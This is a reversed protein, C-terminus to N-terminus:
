RAVDPPCAPSGNGASRGDSRRDPEGLRAAMDKVHELALRLADIQGDIYGRVYGESEDPYVLAITRSNKETLRLLLELVEAAGAAPSAPSEGSGPREGAV